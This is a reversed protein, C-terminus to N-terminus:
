SHIRQEHRKTKPSQRGSPMIQALQLDQDILPPTIPSYPVPKVRNCNALTHNPDDDVYTRLPPSEIFWDVLSDSPDITTDVSASLGYLSQLQEGGCAGLDATM